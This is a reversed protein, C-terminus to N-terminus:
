HFSSSCTRRRDVSRIAGARCPWLQVPAERLNPFPYLLLLTPDHRDRVEQRAKKPFRACFPWSALEKGIESFIVVHPGVEGRHAVRPPGHSPRWCRVLGSCWLPFMAGGHPWRHPVWQSEYRAVNPVVEDGERRHENGGRPRGAEPSTKPSPEIRALEFRANM